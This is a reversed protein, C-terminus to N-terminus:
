QKIPAESYDTTIHPHTLPSDLAVPHPTQALNGDPMVRLTEQELGVLGSALLDGSGSDILRSLRKKAISYLEIGQILRARAWRYKSGTITGYNVWFIVEDLELYSGLLLGRTLYM